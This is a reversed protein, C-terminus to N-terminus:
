NRCMRLNSQWSYESPYQAFLILHFKHQGSAPRQTSILCTFLAMVGGSNM